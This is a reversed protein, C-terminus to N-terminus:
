RGAYLKMYEYIKSQERPSLSEPLVEEKGGHEALMSFPQDDTLVSGIGPTMRDFAVRRLAANLAEDENPEITAQGISVQPEQSEAEPITVMLPELTGLNTARRSSTQRRASGSPLSDMWERLAAAKDSTLEGGMIESMRARSREARIDEPTEEYEFEDAAAPAEEENAWSRILAMDQSEVKPEGLRMTMGNPMRQGQSAYGTGGGRGRWSPQDMYVDHPKSEPQERFMEGDRRSIRTRERPASAQQRRSLILAEEEPTLEIAM